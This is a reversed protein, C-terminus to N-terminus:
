QSFLPGAPNSEEAKLETVKEMVKQLDMWAYKKLAPSRGKLMAAPHYTVRVPIHKWHLWDGRLSGASKGETGLIANAAKAGLAVIIRPRVAVIQSVWIPRCAAIEDAEPDRNKPPRCSVTNCLYVQGRTYGMAEIMRTLLRGAEGVFPIGIRDEHEGPGEGIFALDPRETNGIGFVIRNRGECLKCRTCGEIKKEWLVQLSLMGPKDRKVVEWEEDSCDWLDAYRVTM